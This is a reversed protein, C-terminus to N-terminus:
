KIIKWADILRDLSYAANAPSTSPLTVANIGTQAYIYREYLKGATRGNCFVKNIKTMNILGSIDNVTANKISADASGTIECFQIVDWLALRHDIIFRQKDDITEPVDTNFVAAIAKWFRNQPHGYYFMNERSKVSPFSGLILTESEQSYVAPFPHVVSTLPYM